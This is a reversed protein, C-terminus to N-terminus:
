PSARRDASGLDGTGPASSVTLLIGAPGGPQNFNDNYTGSAGNFGFAGVFGFYLIAAGSPAIIYGSTGWDLTHLGGIAGGGSDTFFYHLPFAVRLSSFTLVVTALSNTITSGTERPFPSTAFGAATRTLLPSSHRL